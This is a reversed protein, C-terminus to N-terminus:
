GLFARRVSDDCMLTKIDGEQVLAGTEMVYCKRSVKAVLNANQEVLLISIGSKNIDNVADALLDIVIPALGLSPEDMMLLKPQSMLARGIALMQQEGGSLSGAKQNRREKLRPFLKYVQELDAAVESKNKRLYAGLKINELVTMYPFLKRGEPVHAIGLDVIQHTQLHNITKGTFEIRGSRLPLLRSIAKLITSKGAGNAGIVSVISGEEVTM